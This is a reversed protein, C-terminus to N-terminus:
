IAESQSDLAVPFVASQHHSNSWEMPYAPHLTWPLNTNLNKNHPPPIQTNEKHANVTASLHEQEPLCFPM